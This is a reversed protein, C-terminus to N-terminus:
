LVTMAPLGRFLPLRAARETLREQPRRNREMTKGGSVRTPAEVGVSADIFDRFLTQAVPDQLSNRGGMRETCLRVERLYTVGTDDLNHVSRTPKHVIKARGFLGVRVQHADDEFLVRDLM